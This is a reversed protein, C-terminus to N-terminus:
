PPRAESTYYSEIPITLCNKDIASSDSFEQSKDGQLTQNSSSHDSLIIKPPDKLQNTSETNNNTDNCSMTQHSCGHISSTSQRAANFPDVERQYAELNICLKNIRNALSLDNIKKAKLTRRGSFGTSSKSSQREIINARRNCDDLNSLYSNICKDYCEAALHVFDELSSAQELGKIPNSVTSTSSRHYESGARSARLRYIDKTCLCTESSLPKLPALVAKVDYYPELSKADKAYGQRHRVQEELLKEFDKATQASKIEILQENLVENNDYYKCLTQRGRFPFPEGLRRVFLFSPLILFHPQIFLL